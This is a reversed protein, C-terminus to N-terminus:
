LINKGQLLRMFYAGKNTVENRQAVDKAIRLLEHASHERALKIYLAIHKKDELTEAIELGIAQYDRYVRNKSIRERLKKAYDESLM